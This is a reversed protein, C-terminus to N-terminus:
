LMNYMRLLAVETLVWALSEDLWTLRGPQNKWTLAPGLILALDSFNKRERSTSYLSTCIALLDRSEM